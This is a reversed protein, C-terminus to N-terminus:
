PKRDSPTLEGTTRRWFPSSKALRDTETEPRNIERDIFEAMAKHSYSWIFYLDGKRVAYLTQGVKVDTGRVHRAKTAKYKIIM